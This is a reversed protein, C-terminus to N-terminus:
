GPVGVARFPTDHRTVCALPGLELRGVQAALGTTDNEMGRLTRHLQRVGPAQRRGRGRGRVRGGAGAGAGVRAGVRVGVGFGFGVKVRVRVRLLYRVGVGASIQLSSLRLGGSAPRPM